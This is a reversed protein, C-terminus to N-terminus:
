RKQCHQLMYGFKPEEPKQLFAADKCSSNLAKPVALSRM